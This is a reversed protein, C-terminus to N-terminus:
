GQVAASGGASPLGLASWRLMGGALSAVCSFGLSELERAASASRGGSRCVVVLKDDREWASSRARLTTLPVHESGAIHGLPGVREDEDRVDVLRVADLATALWGAHVEPTGSASRTVPAWRDASAGDDLQEDELLGARLNAPVAEDMRKPYALNLGAMIAVFADESRADALRPNWAREERVTTCTRGQYDHAPFLTTDDPLSFVQDRVSRYLARADGSQFDTRGCGRILVTDGTFARQLDATVFTLCTATHGPTARVEIAQWGFRVADGHQLQLDATTTGASAALGIKCGTRNRLLGAGSLHDAHVHTDLVIALKLGLERIVTLDRGVLERVPDILVADRTRPCALLYSYTSSERDFM